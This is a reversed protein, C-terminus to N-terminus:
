LLEFPNQSSDDRMRQKIVRMEEIFAPWNKEKKDLAERFRDLSTLYLRVLMIEANNITKLISLEPYNQRVPQMKLRFIIERLRLKDETSKNSKYLADLSRQMEELTQGLAFDRELEKLALELNDKHPKQCVADDPQCSSMKKLFFDVAAENGVFNALSENFAVQNPIWVTSHLSEHIITSVLQAPNSKLTSSLIPDNFWGLTSFAQSGRVWTEYNKGQLYNAEKIADEKEFYGKYPVSGVFPFWWQYLEFSDKKSGAVLWTVADGEVESYKTFAGGPELGMEIAYDRAELVLKLKLRAEESTNPDAIIKSIPERNSLIKAQEWAARMVYTPSCATLLIASSAALLKLALQPLRTSLILKMKCCM